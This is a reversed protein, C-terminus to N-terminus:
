QIFAPWIFLPDDLWASSGATITVDVELPASFGGPSPALSALGNLDSTANSQSVQLIVPMPSDTPDPGGSSTGVPRLVTTQFDVGAAIVPNPPSSSDTVRVVVPQFAAGTSVQGAGAVPQLNQQPLPVPNAYFTQCPANTPAVCATVQVLSALQTVTLTATAYGTAGTSAAASNLVGSGKTVSFNVSLNNQPVGNSLVRATLPVSVTAGQAIYLYPTFVGIDSATETANLTVSVSQSPSYVGPALTATITAVGPATPTLWTEADGNQDSTLSCSSAGGCASLQVGNGASWGITAGAVPTVGDSALV